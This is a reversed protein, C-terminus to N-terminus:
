LPCQIESYMVSERPQHFMSDRLQYFMSDRLQHFMSDGLVHSIHGSSYTSKVVIRWVLAVHIRILRTRWDDAVSKLVYKLVSGSREEGSRGGARGQTSGRSCVCCAGDCWKSDATLAVPSASLSRLCLPPLPRGMISIKCSSKCDQRPQYLWCCWKKEGRFAPGGCTVSLDIWLGVAVLFCTGPARCAGENGGHM